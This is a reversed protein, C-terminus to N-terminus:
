CPKPDSGKGDQPDSGSQSWQDGTGETGAWCTGGPQSGGAAPGGPNSLLEAHEPCWWSM